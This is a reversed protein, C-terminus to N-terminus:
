TFIGEGLWLWGNQPCYSGFWFLAAVSVVHLLISFLLSVRASFRAPISYLGNKRDFDADQLAYIIDFGGCWTMVLLALICPPWAFHGTVAIYAGVPAIGLGLGLVLHALATFRKCYSYILIVFLAVPSLLGTLLNITSATVVFLLANVIVFRLAARASIKGAPIERDATRPNARDIRRDAWRNFGMAANRAFVMCLLVQLLLVVWGYRGACDSPIGETRLAYVFGILAFPMAFITHAFKVLGAYQRIMTSEIKHDCFYDNKEAASYPWPLFDAGPLAQFGNNKEPFINDKCM